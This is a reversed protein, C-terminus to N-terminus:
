RREAKVAVARLRRAAARCSAIAARSRRQQTASAERYLGWAEWQRAYFEKRAAAGAPGGCRAVWRRCHASCWVRPRGVASTQFREGCLPCIRKGSM